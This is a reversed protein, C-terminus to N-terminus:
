IPDDEKNLTLHDASKLLLMQTTNSQVPLPLGLWLFVDLVTVVLVQAPHVTAAGPTLCVTPAYPIGQFTPGEQIQQHSSHM